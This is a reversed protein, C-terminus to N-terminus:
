YMSEMWHWKKLPIKGKFYSTNNHVVFVGVELLTFANRWALNAAPGARIGGGEGVMFGLVDAICAYVRSIVLPDDM